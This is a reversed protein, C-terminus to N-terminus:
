GTSAAPTRLACQPAGTVWGCDIFILFLFFPLIYLWDCWVTNHAFYVATVRACVRVVPQVIFTHVTIYSCLARAAILSRSCIRVCQLAPIHTPLTGVTSCMSIVGPLVWGGVQDDTAATRAYVHPDYSSSCSSHNIKRAKTHPLLTNQLPCYPEPFVVIYVIHRMILWKRFQCTNNLHVIRTMKSIHARCDMLM